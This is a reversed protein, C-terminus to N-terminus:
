GVLIFQSQNHLNGNVNAVILQDGDHIRPQTYREFAWPGKQVAVWKPDAIIQYMCYERKALLKFKESVDILGSHQSSHNFEM